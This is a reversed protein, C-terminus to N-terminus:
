VGLPRQGPKNEDSLGLARWLKLYQGSLKVEHNLLPRRDNAHPTGELKQRIEAMRDYVHCIEGLLPEAGTVIYHDTVWRWLRKGPAKLTRPRRFETLM